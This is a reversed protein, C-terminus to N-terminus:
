YTDFYHQIVKENHSKSLALMLLVRAKAPNLSNSVLGPLQPDEPVIGSGTRSARVVVIGAKEAKIIGAKSRDSVSGAGTGVYVIGAAKNKIAADYFYEPDDQYGYIIVVPPLKTDKNLKFDSKTTNIKENHSIFDVKGNIVTGVIGADPSQFTDTSTTNTKTVYRASSIKDNLVVLVGRGAAKKDAAVKVAEILNMPGDASVSTAPRMSATFVVPKASNITLNLFYSSEDLTDTGHTIVIGDVDKRALLENARASLKLLVDSTMNESGINSIQEGTVQAVNKLEPLNSVLKDVSLDGPKYGVTQTDSSATGAITGGTGLVIIHPLQAAIVGSQFSVFVFIFFIKLHSKRFM